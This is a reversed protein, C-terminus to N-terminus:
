CALLGQSLAFQVAEETQMDLLSWSVAHFFLETGTGM